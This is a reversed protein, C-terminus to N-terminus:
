INLNLISVFIIKKIAQAPRPRNYLTCTTVFAVGIADEAKQAPFVKRANNLVVSHCARGIGEVVVDDGEICYILVTPCEVILCLPNTLLQPYTKRASYQKICRIHQM